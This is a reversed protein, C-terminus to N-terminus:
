LKRYAFCHAWENKRFGNICYLQALQIIILLFELLFFLFFVLLNIFSFYCIYGVPEIARAAEVHGFDEISEWGFAKLVGAVVHKGVDDNGCIFM